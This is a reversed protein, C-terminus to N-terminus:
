WVYNNFVILVWASFLFWFKILFYVIMLLFLLLFYVFILIRKNSLQGKDCSQHISLLSHKLDDILSANEISTSPNTGIKWVGVIKGKNTTEMSWMNVIKSLFIFLRQHMELWTNPAIVILTDVRSKEVKMTKRRLGLNIIKNESDSSSNIDNDEWTIYAKKEKFNRKDSKEM